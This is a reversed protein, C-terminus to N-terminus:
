DTLRDLFTAGTASFLSQWHALNARVTADDDIGYDPLGIGLGGVNGVYFEMNEAVLQLRAQPIFNIEMEFPWGAPKPESGVVNWATKDTSRPEASWAFERVGRAVLIATNAERLQMATRLEFLLGVTSPLAEVRAALLQAEQLADPERLPDAERPVVHDRRGPKRLLEEVVIM